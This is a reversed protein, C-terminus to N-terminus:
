QEDEGWIWRRRAEELRNKPGKDKEETLRGNPRLSWYAGAADRFRVTPEAKILFRSQRKSPRDHDPWTGPFEQQSGPMLVPTGNLRLFPGPSPGLPQSGPEYISPGGVWDPSVDYIPQQSSNKVHTVVGRVLNAGEPSDYTDWVNWIVIRSAQARHREDLDAAFQRRQLDLQREIAGVEKAQKRFALGALIATIIAFLALVATAIASIEGSLDSSM